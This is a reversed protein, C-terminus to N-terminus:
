SAKLERVLGELRQERREHAERQERTLAAYQEHLRAGEAKLHSVTDTLLKTNITTTEGFRDCISDVTAVIKENRDNCEKNAAALAAAHEKAIAKQDEAHKADAATREKWADRLAKALWGAAIVAAVALSMNGVGLWSALDSPTTAPAAPGQFLLAITSAIM